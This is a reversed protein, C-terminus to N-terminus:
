VAPSSLKSESAKRGEWWMKLAALLGFLVFARFVIVPIGAIPNKPKLPADFGLLEPIDLGPLMDLLVWVYYSILNVYAYGEPPPPEYSAWGAHLLQLSASAAVAIATFAMLCSIALGKHIPFQRASHSRLDSIGLLAPYAYFITVVTGLAWHKETAEQIIWIVSGCLLAGIVVTFLVDRITRLM